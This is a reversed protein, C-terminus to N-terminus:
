HDYCIKVTELIFFFTSVRYVYILFWFVLNYDSILGVELWVLKLNSVISISLLDNNMTPYM